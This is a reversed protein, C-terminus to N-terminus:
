SEVVYEEIHVNARFFGVSGLFGTAIIVLKYASDSSPRQLFIDHDRGLILWEVFIVWDSQDSVLAFTGLSVLM